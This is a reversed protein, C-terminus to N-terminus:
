SVFGATVFVMYAVALIMPINIFFAAAKQLPSLRQPYNFATPIERAKRVFLVGCVVGIGILAYLVASEIRLVSEESFGSADTLYSIVLSFLNNFFHVIISPWVSGTKICIWGLGIGAMMAFPAQVLNGHMIAFIASSCIVAFWEGYKRLPQLSPGRFSLEECLAAIVAVRMLALFFGATGSPYNLPPSTFEHGILKSFLVIYSTAINGLMCLGLGFFVALVSLKLDKPPNLPASAPLKTKSEILKGFLSFPLLISVLIIIIDVSFQIVSEGAYEDYLKFFVLLSSFISSIIIYAIISLGLMSGIFRIERKERKKEFYATEYPSRYPQGGNQYYNNM